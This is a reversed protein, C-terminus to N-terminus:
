TFQIGLELLVWDGTLDDAGTGGDRVLEFQYTQGATIGSGMSALAVSESDYQWATGVMSIDSFSEEDWAGPTNNDRIERFHLIPVVDDNPASASTQARSIFSLVLNTAASPVRMTFGVGEETSDDFRRVSLAADITDAAMAATANVDWDANTPSDLDPAYYNRAVQGVFGDSVKTNINALTDASHAAGGLAHATPTRADSLRADNGACAQAAGTGLTRLSGTAAAADVAMTDTGGPEHDSAHATPNQADALLGSLGAVSIEDAGGNQHTSAHLPTIGAVTIDYTGVGIRAGVERGVFARVAAGGVVGFTTQTEVEAVIAEVSGNLVLFGWSAFVASRQVRNVRVSLHDGSAGQEFAISDAAVLRVDGVDLSTPAVNTQLHCRGAGQVKAQGLRVTFRDGAGTAISQLINGTVCEAYGVFVDFTGDSHLVGNGAVTCVLREIQAVSLGGGNKRLAYGAAQRLEGVVLGTGQDQIVAGEIRASPAHLYVGIPITFSEAYIGADECVVAFPNLAGAGNTVAQAIAAALTLKATSYDTGANANNGHKGVYIAQVAVWAGGGGGSGGVCYAVQGSLADVCLEAM